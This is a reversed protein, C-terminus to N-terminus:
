NSGAIDLAGPALIGSLKDWGIVVSPLGYAYAALEYQQFQIHLGEPTFKWRDVEVSMNVADSIDDWIDRALEEDALVAGLTIDKFSQQWGEGTFIDSAVLGRNEEILYHDYSLYSSGHAAGHYYSFSDVASSVRRPTIEYIRVSIDSDVEGSMAGLDTEPILYGNGFGAAAYDNYAIGLADTADILTASFSYRAVPPGFTNVNDVKTTYTGLPFTQVDDVRWDNELLEKRGWITEEVCFLQEDEFPTTQVEGNTTCALAAFDRWARQDTKLASRAQDTLPTLLNFYAIEMELQLAKLDVNDCVAHANPSRVKDCEGANAGSSISVAFLSLIFIGMAQVIKRM